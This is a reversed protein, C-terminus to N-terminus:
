FILEGLNFNTVRAASAAGRSMYFYLGVGGVVVVGGVSAGIILGIGADDDEPSPPPENTPSTTPSVTPDNTPNTTPSVTPDNTPSTTPSVTPPHTSFCLQFGQYNWYYDTSFEILTNAQVFGIQPPKQGYTTGPTGSTFYCYVTTGIILKDVCTPNNTNTFQPQIEFTEHTNYTLNQCTRIKCNANSNYSNPFNTSSFCDNDYTCTDANIVEFYSDTCNPLSAANYVHLLVLATVMTYDQYRVFKPLMYVILFLVLLQPFLLSNFM